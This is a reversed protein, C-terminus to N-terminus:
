RDRAQERASRMITPTDEPRARGPAVDAGAAPAVTSRVEVGDTGPHPMRPRPIPVPSRREQEFMSLQGTGEVPLDEVSGDARIHHMPIGADALAWGVLLWRHCARPDEEACMVAVRGRTTLEILQELGKQFRDLQRLRTYSVYGEADYLEPEPPRGGLAEGLHVYAIGRQRLVRQLARQNFQPSFRSFPQSRVDCLVAIHHGELLRLFAEISHNSHGVSWVERPTSGPSKVATNEM